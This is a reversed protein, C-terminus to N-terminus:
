WVTSSVPGEPGSTSMLKKKVWFCTIRCHVTCRKWSRGAFSETKFHLKKTCICGMSQELAKTWFWVVWGFLLFLPAPCWLSATIAVTGSFPIGQIIWAVAVAWVWSYQKRRQLMHHTVCLTAAGVKHACGEVFMRLCFIPWTLFYTDSSVSLDKHLKRQDTFSM